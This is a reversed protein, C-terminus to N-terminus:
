RLGRAVHGRFPEAHLDFVHGHVDRQEAAPEAALGLGIEADLRGHQGLRHVAFRDLDDPRAVVIQVVVVEVRYRDLMQFGADICFPQRHRPQM